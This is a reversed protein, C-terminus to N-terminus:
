RNEQKSLLETLDDIICQLALTQYQTLDVDSLVETVLLRSKILTESLDNPVSYLLNAFAEDLERETRRILLREGKTTQKNHCVLAEQLKDKRECYKKLNIDIRSIQEKEM